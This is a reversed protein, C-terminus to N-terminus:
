RKGEPRFAGDIRADLRQAFAASVAVRALQGLREIADNVQPWRDIPM